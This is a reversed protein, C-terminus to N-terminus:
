LTLEGSEACTSPWRKTQVSLLKVPTQAFTAKLTSWHILKTDGNWSVIELKPGSEPNMQM